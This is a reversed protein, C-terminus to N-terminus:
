RKYVKYKPRYNLYPLLFVKISGVIINAEVYIPYRNKDATVYVVLPDTDSFFTSSTIVAKYVNCAIRKRKHVMQGKGAYIVYYTEKKGDVILPVALTDGVSLKKTNIIRLYYTASLVDYFSKNLTLLTDKKPHRTAETHVNVIHKNWNFKYINHIYFGGELTKKEYFLPKFGEISTISQYHDELKFIFAYKKLSYGTGTFRLSKIGEYTTTDTQLDVNGAYVWLPGLNYYVRLSLDEHPMFPYRQTQAFSSLSSCLLLLSFFFTINKRIM